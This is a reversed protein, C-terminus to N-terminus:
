GASQILDLGLSKETLVFRGAGSELSGLILAAFGFSMWLRIPDMDPFSFLPLTEHAVDEMLVPQVLVMMMVAAGKAPRGPKAQREQIPLTQFQFEVPTLLDKQYLALRLLLDYYPVAYSGM